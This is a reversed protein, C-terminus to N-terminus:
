NVSIQCRCTVIKICTNCQDECNEICDDCNEECDNDFNQLDTCTCSNTSEVTQCCGAICGCAFLSGICLALKDCDCACNIQGCDFNPTSANNNKQMFICIGIFCLLPSIIFGLIYVIQIFIWLHQNQNNGATTPDNISNNNFTESYTQEVGWLTLSVALIIICMIFCCMFHYTNFCLDTLGQCFLIQRISANQSIGRANTSTRSLKRSRNNTGNANPSNVKSLNNMGNLNSGTLNTSTQSHFQNQFLNPNSATFQNGNQMFQTQQFNSPDTLNTPFDSSQMPFQNLMALASGNTKPTNAFSNSQNWNSLQNTHLMPNVNNQQFQHLNANQVTPFSTMNQMMAGNNIPQNSAAFQYQPQQQQHQQHQQHQQQLLQQQEPLLQTQNQHSFSQNFVQDNQQQQQLQQQMTPSIPQQNTHPNSNFNQPLQSQTQNISNISNVPSRATILHSPTANTPTVHTNTNNASFQTQNQINQSNAFNANSLEQIRRKLQIKLALNVNINLNNNSISQLLEDIENSNLSLIFSEDAFGAQILLPELQILEATNLINSLSM